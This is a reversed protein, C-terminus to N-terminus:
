MKSLEIQRDRLKMFKDKNEKTKNALFDTMAQKRDIRVKNFEEKIEERTM